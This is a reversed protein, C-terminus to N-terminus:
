PQFNHGKKRTEKNSDRYKYTKTKGIRLCEVTATPLNCGRAVTKNSFHARTQMHFDRLAHPFQFNRGDM